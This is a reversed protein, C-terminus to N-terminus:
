FYGNEKEIKAAVLRVAASLLLSVSSVSVSFFALGM